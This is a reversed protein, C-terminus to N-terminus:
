HFFRVKRATGEPSLDDLEADLDVEAFAAFRASKAPPAPGGDRPAARRACAVALGAACLALVLAPHAPRRPLRWAFAMSSRRVLLGIKGSVGNVADDRAALISFAPCRPPRSSM